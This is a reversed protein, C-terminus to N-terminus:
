LLEAAIRGDEFGQAIGALEFALAAGALVLLDAAARPRPGVRESAVRQGLLGAADVLRPVPDWALLVLRGGDALRLLRGRQNRQLCARRRNDSAFFFVARCCPQTQRSKLNM